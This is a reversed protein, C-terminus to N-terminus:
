VKSRCEECLIKQSITSFVIGNSSILIQTKPLMQQITKVTHAAEQSSIKGPFYVVLIEDPELKLKAIEVRIVEIGREEEGSMVKAGEKWLSSM